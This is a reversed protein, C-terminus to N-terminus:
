ANMPQNNCPGQSPISGAIKACGSSVGILHVVWGSSFFLLRVFSKQLISMPCTEQGRWTWKGVQSQWRARRNQSGSGQPTVTHWCGNHLTLHYYSVPNLSCHQWSVNQWFPVPSEEKARARLSSQALGNVRASLRSWWWCQMTTKRGGRYSQGMEPRDEQKNCPTLTHRPPFTSSCGRERGGVM